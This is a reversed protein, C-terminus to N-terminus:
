KKRRTLFKVRSLFVPGGISIEKVCCWRRKKIIKKSLQCEQLMDILRPIGVTEGKQLPPNLPINRIYGPSISFKCM